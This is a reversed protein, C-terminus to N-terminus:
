VNPIYAKGGSFQQNRQGSGHKNPTSNPNPYFQQQKKGSSAPQHPHARQAVIVPPDQVKVGMLEQVLFELVQYRKKPDMDHVNEM